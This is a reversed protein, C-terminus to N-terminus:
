WSFRVQLDVKRNYAAGAGGHVMVVMGGLSNQDILKQFSDQLHNLAAAIMRDPIEETGIELLFPISM